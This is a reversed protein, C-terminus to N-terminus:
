CHWIFHRLYLYCQLIPLITQSLETIILYYKGLEKVLEMTTFYKGFTALFAIFALIRNFYLLTKNKM